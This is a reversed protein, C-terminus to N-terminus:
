AHALARSIERQPASQNQTESPVRETNRIINKAAFGPPTM